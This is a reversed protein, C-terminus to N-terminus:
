TSDSGGGRRRPLRFEGLGARVAELNVEHELRHLVEDSIVEQDRLEILAHREAALGHARLRRFDETGELAEPEGSAGGTLRGLREAYASKIRELHEPVVWPEGSLGDLRALARTVAHERARREERELVDEAPLRLLRVLPALSLGQVVLTLLIVVFTIVIIEARYPFPEGSATRLPLALAAALSVIGRLGTWGVLFVQPWHLLPDNRRISPVLLRPLLTALPVWVLRVGVAVLMILLGYWLLIGVRGSLVTARLVGVQLGILVFIGGNLLFVFQEWIARAQVRTAATAVRSFHQRLYIGGAVCALVASVHAREALVWAAYPAVLSMGIESLSDHTRRMAWVAVASVAVGIAVGAASSIVFQLLTGGLSFAGTVVAAVAARYLILASADNVLSEGELIVVVRRPVSLRRGIATAAVADPPSVIAGLALAAAWGIGPLMAQAAWGVALTTAVVLGLALLAIPRANDKFDRLSTGYAASWLIPPLFVLFVLDPELAVDPVGPTLGLALGGLVLLIPYPILLKRAIATLGVMVMMLLIVIEAQRPTEM